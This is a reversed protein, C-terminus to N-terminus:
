TDGAPCQAKMYERVISIIDNVEEGTFFWDEPEMSPLHIATKDDNLWYHELVRRSAPPQGSRIGACDDNNCGM